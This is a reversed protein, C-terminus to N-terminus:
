GPSVAVKWDSKRRGQSGRKGWDGSESQLNSASRRDVTGDRRDEHHVYTCRCDELRCQPLPLLPSKDALFRRSSFARVGDCADEEFKISIAHYPNLKPVARRVKPRKGGFPNLVWIIAVASFLVVILTGM